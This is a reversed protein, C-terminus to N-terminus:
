GASAKLAQTFDSLIDDIHETGASVRVYDPTVGAAL